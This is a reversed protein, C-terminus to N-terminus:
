RRFLQHLCSLGNHLQKPLAGEERARFMIRRALDAERVASRCHPSVETTLVASARLESIMGFLLANIGCTDAETLETLNGVGMMMEADPLRRRLEHYRVISDTFGFHIPDLIPDVLARRGRAQLREWARQLSDLDGPTTPILVPTAAVEDAIWLTDEHLSLLYDAGARGGELLDENRM